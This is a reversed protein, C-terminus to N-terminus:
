LNLTPLEIMLDAQSPIGRKGAMIDQMVIFCYSWVASRWDFFATGETNYVPNPDDKYTCVSIINDYGHARATGDLMAQVANIINSKIEDPTKNTVSWGDVVSDANITITPHIDQLEANYVPVDEQTCPVWVGKNPALPTPTSEFDVRTVIQNDRILAYQM